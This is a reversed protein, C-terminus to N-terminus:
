KYVTNDGGAAEARWSSIVWHARAPRQNTAIPLTRQSNQEKMECTSNCRPGFSGWTPSSFNQLGAQTCEWSSTAGIEAPTVVDSLQTVRKTESIGQCSRDPCTSRGPLGHCSETVTNEHVRVDLLINQKINQSNQPCGRPHQGHNRSCPYHKNDCPINVHCQETTRKALSGNDMYIDFCFKWWDALKGEINSFSRCTSWNVSTNKNSHSLLNVM